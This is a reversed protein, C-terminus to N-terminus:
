DSEQASLAPPISVVSMIAPGTSVIYAQGSSCIDVVPIPIHVIPHDCECILPALLPIQQSPPMGMSLPLFPPLPISIESCTKASSSATALLSSLPPLTFSEISTTHPHQPTVMVVPPCWCYYPPPSFISSSSTTNTNTNHTASIISPIQMNMNGSLVSPFLCIGSSSSSLEPVRNEEHQNSTSPFPHKESSTELRVGELRRRLKDRVVNRSSAINRPLGGEKFSSPRPSLSGQIISSCTRVRSAKSSALLPPSKSNSTESVSGVLFTFTRLHHVFHQLRSNSIGTLEALSPKRELLERMKELLEDGLLKSKESCWFYFPTPVRVVFSRGSTDAPIGEIVVSSCDTTNRLISIRDAHGDDGVFSIRLDFAPLLSLILNGLIVTVSMDRSLHSLLRDEAANSVNLKLMPKLKEDARCAGLVQMDLAQLWQVVTGEQTNRQM